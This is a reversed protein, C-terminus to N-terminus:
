EENKNIKMITKRLEQYIDEFVSEHNKEKVRYMSIDNRSRIKDLFKNHEDKIVALVPKKSDMIEFVKEQFKLAKLEFRGLEDMVLIDRFKSGIELFQVGKDDFVEPNVQWDQSPHDRKAFIQCKKKFGASDKGQWHYYYDLPDTLYFSLWQNINGTRGVVFGGPKLNLKDLIRKVITSKGVYKDGTILINNPM